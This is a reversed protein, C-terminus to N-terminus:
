TRMVSAVNNGTYTLTLTAVLTGGTGGVFYKVTSVNNGSYALAISDYAPIDLGNSIMLSGSSTCVLPSVLSSTSNSRAYLAVPQADTSSYEQKAM